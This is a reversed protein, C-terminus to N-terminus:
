HYGSPAHGRMKIHLRLAEGEDIPILDTAVRQLAKKAKNLDSAGLEPFRAAGHYWNSWVPDHAVQVGLSAAQEITFTAAGVARGVAPYLADPPLGDATLLEELDGSLCNDSSSPGFAASSIRWRKLKADYVVQDPSQLTRIFRLQPRSLTPKRRRFQKM